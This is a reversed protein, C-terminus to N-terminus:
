DNNKIGTAGCAIGAIIGWANKTLDDGTVIIEGESGDGRVYNIKNSISKIEGRLSKDQRANYGESFIGNIKLRTFPDILMETNINLHKAFDLLIPNIGEMFSLVMAVGLVSEMDNKRLKVNTIEPINCISCIYQEYKGLGKEQMEKVSM